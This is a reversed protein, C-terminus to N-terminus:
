RRAYFSYFKCEAILQQNTQTNRYYSNLLSYYRLYQSPLRPVGKSSPRYPCNPSNYYANLDCKAAWFTARAGLELNRTAVRAKEFYAAALRCDFNERNGLISKKTTFINTRGMGWWSAGSRYYDTAKWATGFYTMNYFALGIQYYQPAGNDDNGTRAQFELDLLKKIVAVRDYYGTDIRPCYICDRFQDVFPNFKWKDRLTQPLLQLTVLAAELQGRLLQETGKMDVLEPEITENNRRKVLEQEFLNKNPHQCFAILDELYETKPNYYLDNLSNRCLFAVGKNRNSQYLSATKEKFFGEFDDDAAYGESNRISTWDDANSSAKLLLIRTVTECKDVQELMMPDKLLPRVFQFMQWAFPYDECMLSLYGTMLFWLRPDRVTQEKATKYVFDRFQILYDRRQKVVPNPLSVMRFEHGLFIREMRGVERLLVVSLFENKPDLQYIAKLDNFGKADRAAARMAHVTARESATKCFNLCSLWEAETRIDFSRFSSERKSPCNKFVLSFYYAAEARKGLAQLIGARHGLVWWKVVSVVRDDVKPILENYLTMAAQFDRVYHALRIVQYACRLRIFPSKFTFFLDRGENILTYMEAQDQTKNSWEDIKTVLPECKKAFILYELTETCGNKVLADAFHNGSLRHGRANKSRAAQLMDFIDDSSTEYIVQRVANSDAVDCLKERWEWINDHTQRAEQAEYRHLLEDTQMLFPAYSPADVLALDKTLFSYNRDQDDGVVCAAKGVRQPSLLALSVSVGFRLWWNTLFIKKM